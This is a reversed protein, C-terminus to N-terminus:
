PLAPNANNFQFKVSPSYSPWATIFNNWNPNLQNLTTVWLSGHMLQIAEPTQALHTADLAGSFYCFIWLKDNTTLGYKVAAEAIQPLQSTWTACIIINLGLESIAKVSQDITNERIYYFEVASSSINEASLFIQLDIAFDVGDELYLIAVNTYGFQKCLSTLVQVTADDSPITRAYMPFWRRNQATKPSSTWHDVVPVKFSQAAASGGESADLGGYGAIAQVSLNNIAWFTDHSARAPNGGCDCYRVLTINKTCNLVRNLDPFINVNRENFLKAGLFFNVGVSVASEGYWLLDTGDIGSWDFAAMRLDDALILSLLVNTFLLFSFLFERM